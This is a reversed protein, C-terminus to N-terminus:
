FLSDSLLQRNRENNLFHLEASYKLSRRLCHFCHLVYPKDSLTQIKVYERFINLLTMTWRM